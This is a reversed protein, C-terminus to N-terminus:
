GRKAEWITFMQNSTSGMAEIVAANNIGELRAHLADLLKSRVALDHSVACGGGGTSEILFYVDEAYPGQDNTMIRVRAIDAWAVHERLKPATRTIGVDDITLQDVPALMRKTPLVGLMMLIGIIMCLAFFATAYWAPGEGIAIGIAVFVASGLTLRVGAL